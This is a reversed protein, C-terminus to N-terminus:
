FIQRLTKRSQFNWKRTLQLPLQSFKQIVERSSSESAFLDGFWTALVTFIWFKPFNELDKKRSPCQGALLDRFGEIYVRSQPCAIPNVRLWTVLVPCCLKQFKKYKQLFLFSELFM